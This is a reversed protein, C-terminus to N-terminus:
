VAMAAPLQSKALDVAQEATMPHEVAAVGATFTCGTAGRTAANLVSKAVAILRQAVIKAAPETCRPLIITFQGEGWRGIYDVDRLSGALASAVAGALRETSEAQDRTGDDGQMAFQIVSLPENSRASEAVRRQLLSLLVARDPIVPSQGPVALRDVTPTTSARGSFLRRVSSKHQREVALVCHAGNHWHTCNRGARKSAYVCEDARSIVKRGDEGPVGEAVGLSATISLTAGEVDITMGEIATRIRGAADQAELLRAGHLIVAFEEGGYRCAADTSKILQPLRKGLTRLVEDGAIHGHADNFQKFYDVDLMVVSFPRHRDNLEAVAAQLAADFARRNPLRTLPDTEAEVQRSTLEQEQVAIKQEAAVLRSQLEFNADLLEVTANLILKEDKTEAALSDGLRASVGEVLLRHANVDCAMNQAVDRLERVSVETASQKAALAQEDITEEQPEETPGAWARLRRFAITAAMGTFFAAYGLSFDLSIQDDM